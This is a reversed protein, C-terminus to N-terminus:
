ISIGRKKPAQGHSKCFHNDPLTNTWSEVEKIWFAEYDAKSDKVYNGRVSTISIQTLM